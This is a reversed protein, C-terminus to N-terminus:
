FIINGNEDITVTVPGSPAQPAGTFEAKTLNSAADHVFDIGYGEPYIMHTLRGARDYAFSRGYNALNENPDKSYLYEALDSLGDGDLDQAANYGSLPNLFNDEEWSSPIGDGDPDDSPSGYTDNDMYSLRFFADPYGITSWTLVFSGDQNKLLPSTCGGFGDETLCILKWRQMDTAYELAYVHTSVADWTFETEDTAQLINMHLSPPTFGSMGMAAYGGSGFGEVSPSSMGSLSQTGLTTLTQQEKKLSYIPDGPPPRNAEAEQRDAAAQERFDALAELYPRYSHIYSHLWDIAAYVDEDEDVYPQFHGIFYEPAETEPPPLQPLVQSNNSWYGDWSGHDAIWYLISYGQEWDFLQDIQTLDSFDLTSWVSKAQGGEYWTIRSPNGPGFTDIHLSLSLVEPAPTVEEITQAVATECSFLAVSAAGVARLRPYLDNM